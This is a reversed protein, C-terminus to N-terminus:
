KLNMSDIAKFLEEVKKVIRKQESLPPIGIMLNYFLEKNLHPIAAGKKSNRLFFKYNLLQLLVYPKYLEKNIILQKFTSGMYGDQPVSFVEGSNEGDVLIVDDGKKVFKGSDLYTASSKGRLFKADLLVNKGTQSLGDQLYCIDMLKVWSWNGPIEFPMDEDEETIYKTKPKKIIGKELLMKKEALVKECLRESNGDSELHPVLKGQVAEQLISRKLNKPLSENLEDLQKQASGYEEVLPMIQNLKEVIRKQEALPPIALLTRAIDKLVWNKNGVGRTNERVQSQVLPSQILYVFFSSDLYEPFFKVLALSVFLSFQIDVDIITPVGTTGVKSLLLDGKEPNCRQNLLAAEEKSIFKTDSFSLKGSSMNKVSIFPVGSSTYKPTQHTGDSLHWVVDKLRCWSWGNPIQFPIEDSIIKPENSGIQEYWVDSEQFIRSISASNKKRSKSSGQNKESRASAIRVLLKDAPEDDPNQEVLKGQIMWQLISAKLQKGDM